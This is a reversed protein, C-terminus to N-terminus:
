TILEFIRLSTTWSGALCATGSRTGDFSSKRWMMEVEAVRRWAGIERGGADVEAGTSLCPNDDLEVELGVM